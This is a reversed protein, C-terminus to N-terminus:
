GPPRLKVESSSPASYAPAPLTLVVRLGPEGTRNGVDIRGGHDLVIKKVIPLGLGTGTSKTTFYPDFVHEADADTLGPGNDEIVVRLGEAGASAAIRIAPSRPPSAGEAADIGNEVLNVLARRMLIPDLAVPTAMVSECALEVTARERLQPNTRVFDSLFRGLECPVPEVKPLRAFESFERVLGRLTEVEESVIELAEALMPEFRDPQDRLEAFKRDLQQMALLIPTLPNKIEHALRRAIEQWASVRQLYAVRQHSAEIEEVMANFRRALAALEDRGGDRVRVSLDGAGVARAAEAIREIRTTTRRALFTGVVLALAVVGGGLYLYTRRMGRSLDAELSELARFAGLTDGVAELESVFASPIAFHVTLRAPPTTPLAAREARVTPEPFGDPGLRAPPEPRVQHVVPASAGEWDVRLAVIGPDVEGYAALVEAAVADPAAGAWRGDAAVLSTALANARKEADFYQRHAEASNVLHAQVDPNLGVSVAQSFLRDVIFLSVAFPLAGVVLLVAVLKLLSRSM